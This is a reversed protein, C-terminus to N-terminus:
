TSGPRAPSQCDKAVPIPFSDRQLSLRRRHEADHTSVDHLQEETTRTAVFDARTAGLTGAIGVDVHSRHARKSLLQSAAACLNEITGLVPNVLLTLEHDFVAITEDQHEGLVRTPAQEQSQSSPPARLERCSGFPSM